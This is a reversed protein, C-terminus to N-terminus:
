VGYDYDTYNKYNNYPLNFIKYVLPHIMIITEVMGCILFGSIFSDKFYIVLVLYLLGKVCSTIKWKLRKKENILPRKETDAPAYKFLAFISISCIIVKIYINIFSVLYSIYVGGIFMITSSILCYISKSAHLGFASSRIFNFTILLLVLEKIIGLLYAILFIVVLKTVSLYVTELGYEIEDLKDQDYKGGASIAKLSYNLFKKKM